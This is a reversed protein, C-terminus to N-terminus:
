RSSERIAQAAFAAGIGIGGGKALHDAMFQDFMAGMADSKDGPFLGDGMNTERLSKLLISLFMSEIKEGAIEEPVGAKLFGTDRIDNQSLTAMSQLSPAVEM